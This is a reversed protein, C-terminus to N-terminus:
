TKIILRDLFPLPKDITGDASYIKIWDDRSIYENFRELLTTRANNLIRGFDDGFITLYDHYPFPMSNYLKNYNDETEDIFEAIETIAKYLEDYMSNFWKRDFMNYYESLEITLWLLAETRSEMQKNLPGYNILPYKTIIESITRTIIDYIDCDKISEDSSDDSSQDSLYRSSSYLSDDSSYSM